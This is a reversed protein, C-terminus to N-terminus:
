VKAYKPSHGFEKKFAISFNSFSTYGFDTYIETPKKNGQELIKKAQLLRKQQLWKGPNADYEKEFHRKFTSLSMNALFAIDSISLNTYINSEVIKKLSATKESSALGQIYNVFSDGYKHSLYLMIEEFKISLLPSNAGTKLHLISNISSVFSHIFEDNEIIFFPQDTDSTKKSKKVLYNHKELFDLINDNTFFLLKCFYIEENNLLETMLCNGSKILVSQKNNVEVITDELQVKKEGKQLFSFMHATLNVRNNVADETMKFDYCLLEPDNKKNSFFIEPINQISM